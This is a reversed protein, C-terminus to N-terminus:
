SDPVNAKGVKDIVYYKQGNATPILILLDGVKLYLDYIRSSLVLDENDLIIEDGLSVSLPSVKIIKGTAAGEQPKNDREKFMRALSIEWAEM